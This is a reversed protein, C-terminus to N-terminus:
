RPPPVPQLRTVPRDVRPWVLPGLLQTVLAWGASRWSTRVMSCKLANAHHHDTDHGGRRLVMDTHWVFLGAGLVGIDVGYGLPAHVFPAGRRYGMWTSSPARGPLAVVSRRARLTHAPQRQCSIPLLSLHYHDGAGQLIGFGWLDPSAHPLAAAGQTEPLHSRNQALDIDPSLGLTAMSSRPRNGM